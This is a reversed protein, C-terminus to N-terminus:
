WFKSLYNRLHEHDYKHARYAIYMDPRVIYYGSQGIGFREYVKGTAKTFPITEFSFFEKYPEMAARFEPPIKDNFVLVSFSTGQVKEQINTENGSEDKFPVYPLREGPYPADASFAGLSANKSLSSKSYRIGIESATKFAFNQIFELNRFFPAALKLVVPVIYLRFTKLLFNKSTVVNFVRDTTGVLNKAILIREETYTDLLAEKAKGKLVLALKWALNYADQLGTNMGQAGVPSHIHAADGALFCRGKKFSAAFRHHSRYESIWQPDYLKVNMHVGKAFNKEIDEFTIEEKGAWEGPV